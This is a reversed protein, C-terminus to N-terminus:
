QRNNKQPTLLTPAKGIKRAPIGAVLIQAPVSKTVVSGAAVVSQEGIEINGLITAGAGVFAGKRLTPHRKGDTAGTSGLTVGHFLYCDSEIM